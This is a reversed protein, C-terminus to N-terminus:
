INYFFNLILRGHNIPRLQSRLLMFIGNKRQYSLNVYLYTEHFTLQSCSSTIIINEHHIQKMRLERTIEHRHKRCFYCHKNNYNKKDTYNDRSYTPNLYSYFVIFKLSVVRELIDEAAVVKPPRAPIGTKPEREMKHLM